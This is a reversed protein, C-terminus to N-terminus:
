KVLLRATGAAEEGNMVMVMYVGANLDSVNIAVKGAGAQQVDMQKVMKGQVDFIRVATIGKVAANASLQLVTETSSPNPFVYMNEVAGTETVATTMCYSYAESAVTSLVPTISASTVAAYVPYVDTSINTNATSVPTVVMYVDNQGCDLGLQEDTVFLHPYIGGVSNTCFGSILLADSNSKRMSPAGSSYFTGTGSGITKASILNGQADTRVVIPSGYSSAYAALDGNSLETIKDFVVGYFNNDTYTKHWLVNGGANVKMIYGGMDQFGAMVYNGDSTSAITRPQTYTGSQYIKAWQMQGNADTKVLFADSDRKGTCLFGGDSCPRTDFGPNKGGITDGAFSSTWIPSGYADTKMILINTYTSITLILDGSPLESVSPSYYAADSVIYKRSWVANGSPDFWIMFASMNYMTAPDTGYGLLYTGGWSLEGVASVKIGSIPFGLSSIQKTWVPNGNADTKSVYVNSNADESWAMLYGGSYSCPASAASYYYSPYQNATPYTFYKQMSNQALLQGSLLVFSLLLLKKM